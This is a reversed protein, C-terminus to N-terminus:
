ADDRVTGAAPEEMVTRLHDLGQRWVDMGAALSKRGKPTAAYVKRQRGGVTEVRSRVCGCREFEKLVPYVTGQTPVCLNRTLDSLRGIIGYGHMPQECVTRLILLKCLSANMVANWYARCTYDM